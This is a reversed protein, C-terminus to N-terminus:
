EGDGACMLRVRRLSMWRWTGPATAWLRMAIASQSRTAAQDAILRRLFNVKNSM